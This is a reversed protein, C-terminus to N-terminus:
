DESLLKSKAACAGVGKDIIENLKATNFLNIAEVTTGGKSSVKEILTDLSDKSNIAFLTSGLVTNFVLKTSIEHSLGVKVGADILSKLFYFVYAPGSGSISTLADFQKEQIEVVEGCINFINNIFNFENSEIKQSYYIGITGNGELCPLNPMARIIPGDFSIIKKIKSVSVGAMISIIYQSLIDNKNFKLQFFTQPKIALLTIRAKNFVDYINTTTDVGLRSYYSLKESNIDCIIMDDNDINICSRHQLINNIIASGMNGAGIFGLKYKM